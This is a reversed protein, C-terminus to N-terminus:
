VHSSMRGMGTRVQHVGEAVAIPHAGTPQVEKRRIM